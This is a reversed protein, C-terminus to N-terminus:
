PLRVHVTTGEGPLAHLELTGGAAEVQERCSALGVHGEGLAQEPRGAPMGVGDDLVVLEVGGDVPRVAVQVATARAHKAVNTVLERTLGIVLEHHRTEVDDAVTVTAPPGGMRRARDTLDRLAPGLGGHELASPHLEDAGERLSVAAQTTHDLAAAVADPALRPTDLEQIAVLVLQLADDHLARAVAAREGDQAAVSDRLLRRRVTELNATRLELRARGVSALFAVTSTWTLTLLFIALATGSWPEGQVIDTAVCASVAAALVAVLRLQVAPPGLLLFTLPLITAPALVPSEACGSFWVLLGVGIMDGVALRRAPLREWRDSFAWAFATVQVAGMVLLLVVITTRSTEGPVGLLAAVALPPAAAVRLIALMRAATRADTAAPDEEEAPPTARPARLEVITSRLRDAAERLASTCRRLADPDGEGDHLEQLDQKAALLLQLPGAGLDGSIRRRETAAASLLDVLLLRRLLYLNAVRDRLTTRGAAIAVGVVTALTLALANATFSRGSLPEDQLIDPLSAAALSILLFSGSFLLRTRGLIFAGIAPFVVIVTAAPSQAGGSAAVLGGLAFLGLMPLVTQPSREWRRSFAVATMAAQAGLLVAAVAWYGDWRENSLAGAVVAVVVGLLRATTLLRLGIKRAVYDPHADAGPMALGARDLLDIRTSEAM